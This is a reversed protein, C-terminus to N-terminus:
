NDRKRRVADRFDRYLLVAKDGVSVAIVASGLLEAIWTVIAMGAEFSEILKLLSLAYVVMAAFVSAKGLFSSRPEVTGGQYLFLAAMGVFQFALRFILLWFFWRSVLGFYTFALAVATLIVYDSSSDLYKGIRTIEGHGRSVRGDIFDTIFSLATVVILWPVADYRGSLFTLYLITPASSIRFMTLVNAANIVKLKRNDRVLVFDDRMVILFAGFAVHVAASVAAFSAFVTMPMGVSLVAALFLVLQGSYHGVTAAIISPVLRSPTHM